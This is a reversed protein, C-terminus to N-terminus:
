VAPAFVNTYGAGYLELVRQDENHIAFVKSDRDLIYQM